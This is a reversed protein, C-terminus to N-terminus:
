LNQKGKRFEMKRTYQNQTQRTAEKTNASYKINYEMRKKHRQMSARINRNM